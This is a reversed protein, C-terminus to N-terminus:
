HVCYLTAPRLLLFLVFFKSCGKLCVVLSGLVLFAIVDALVLWMMDACSRNPCGRINIKEAFPGM